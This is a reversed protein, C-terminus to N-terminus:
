ARETMRAASFFPILGAAVGADHCAFYLSAAERGAELFVGLQRDWLRQDLRGARMDGNLVQVEGRLPEFRLTM